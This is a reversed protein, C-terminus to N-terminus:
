NEITRNEDCGDTYRKLQPSKPNACDPCLWGVSRTQKWGQSRLVKGFKLKSKTGPSDEWYACGACFVTLHTHIKGTGKVVTDFEREM